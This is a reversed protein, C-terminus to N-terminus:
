SPCFKQGLSSHLYRKELQVLHEQLEVEFKSQPNIAFVYGDYNAWIHGQNLMIGRWGVDSWNRAVSSQAIETLLERTFVHNFRQVMERANSVPPIPYKRRLPYEISSALLRKDNQAAGQIFRDLVKSNEKTISYEDFEESPLGAAGLFIALFTM